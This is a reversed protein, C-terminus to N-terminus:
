RVRGEKHAAVLEDYLKNMEPDKPNARIKSEVLDVAQDFEQKNWVKRGFGVGPPQGQVGAAQRKALGRDGVGRAEKLLSWAIKAARTPGLSALNNESIIEILDEDDSPDYGQQSRIFETASATEQRLQAQQFEQERTTHFESTISDRLEDRIAELRSGIVGEPDQWFNGPTKAAGTQNRRFLEERLSSLDQRLQEVADVRDRLERNQARLKVMDQFLRSGRRGGDRQQDGEATSQEGSAASTATQGEGLDAAETGPTQGPTETVATGADSGITTGGGVTLTTDSM